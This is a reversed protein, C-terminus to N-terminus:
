EIPASIKIKDLPAEQVAFPRGLSRLASQVSNFLPNQCFVKIFQQREQSDALAQMSGYYTMAVPESNLESRM